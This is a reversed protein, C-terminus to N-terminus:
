KSYLQNIIEACNNITFISTPHLSNDGHALGNRFSSILKPLKNSYEKPNQSNFEVHSFGKDTIVDSDVAYKLLKNLTPREIQPLKKRLAMELTSFVKLEAIQHLPYYLWAYISLMIAINFASKVDEPVSDILKVDALVKYRYDLTYEILLNTRPDRLAFNAWREDPELLSALTKLDEL